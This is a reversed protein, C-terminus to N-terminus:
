QNAPHIEKGHHFVTMITRTNRIDDVPNANLILLDAEKGPELTGDKAAIGLLQANVQTASHIAELPTLGAAVMLELERHEAYGPIRTPMAGSDTGFGIKVGGESLLRLNQQAVAFDQRHRPIQPDTEVKKRYADSSLMTLVEPTVALELFPDKLFEPHDAFVFFSEDVTFTPIYFVGRTKMEQILASDVNTDRISHALVDIGSAVLFKADSLSYVHAAVRLHHLHAEDIVARIVEPSMKPKTGYLNDVWIKLFDPHRTAIERVDARAEEATAPQYLQDSQHPLPPAGEPVGIGRDATYVTAGGLAGARQEARIGYLLDRNLGLSLMSTVGYREYQNLEALVNERTYAEASNKTGAVLALHGHANMIGPIATKGTMDLVRAGRPIKSGSLVSVIRGNRIVLSVNDKAPAGTGDIVRLHTLVTTQAQGLITFLLLSCLSFLRLM